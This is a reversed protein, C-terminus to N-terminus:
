RSSRALLCYLCSIDGCFLYVLSNSLGIPLRPRQCVVPRDANGKVHFTIVYSEYM